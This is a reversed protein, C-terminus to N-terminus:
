VHEAILIYENITAFFICQKLRQEIEDIWGDHEVASIINHQVALQAAHRLSGLLTAQADRAVTVVPRMDHVRWGSQTCLRELQRGMWNNGDIHDCRWDLIRRTLERDSHDVVFTGWDRELLALRGGVRVVRRVERLVAHPDPAHMLLRAALAHDFYNDAYTLATADGHEFRLAPHNAHQRAVDLMTESLDVGVVVGATGVRGALHRAIIGTGCGLDLVRAGAQPDLATVIATYLQQQDPAHGRAELFLAMNRAEQPALLDPNSWVNM